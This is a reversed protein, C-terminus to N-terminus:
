AGDPVPRVGARQSGGKRWDDVEHRIANILANEQFALVERDEYSFDLEGQGGKKKSQPTGPVYHALPRRGAQVIPTFAGEDTLM